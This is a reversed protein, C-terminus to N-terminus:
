MASLIVTHAHGADESSSIEITDGAALSEIMDDDIDIDHPHASAGQISYTQAGNEILTELSVTFMHGHNFSIDADVMASQAFGKTPKLVAATAGLALAGAGLKLFNRREM